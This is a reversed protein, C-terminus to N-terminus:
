LPPVTWERLLFQLFAQRKKLESGRRYLRHWLRDASWMVRDFLLYRPAWLLWQMRRRADSVGMLAQVRRRSIARDRKLQTRDLNQSLQTPRMRFGGLRVPLWKAKRSLAWIRLFWDEDCNLPMKSDLPLCRETLSHRWYTCDSQFRGFFLWATEFRVWRAPARVLHREDFAWGDSYVLDLEPDAFSNIVTEFAGPMVLDDAAHWHVIDGQALRLGKTVADAQGDDKESIVRLPLIRAFAEVAALTRDKSLGDVIIVEFPPVSQRAISALCDSIYEEVNYTPIVVSIRMAINRM